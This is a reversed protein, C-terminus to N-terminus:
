YSGLVALNRSRAGEDFFKDGVIVLDVDGFKDFDLISRRPLEPFDAKKKVSSSLECIFLQFHPECATDSEWLIFWQM